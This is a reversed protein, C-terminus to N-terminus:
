QVAGGAMPLGLHLKIQFREAGRQQDRTVPSAFAVNSFMPSAALLTVLESANASFGDLQASRGEIRLETLYTTAPLVRTVEEWVGVVPTTALKRLRPQRIQAAGAEAESVKRRLGQVDATAAKLQQEAAENATDLNTWTLGTAVVNAAVVAAALGKMARAAARGLPARRRDAEPLLNVPLIQGDPLAVEVAKLPLRLRALREIAGALIFHKLVIHHVRVADGEGRDNARYWDTLVDKAQFPTTRALDLALIEAARTLAAKPIALERILCRRIPVRITASLLGGWRRAQRRLAEDDISKGDATRDHLTGDDGLWLTLEHPDRALWRAIRSPGTPVLAASAAPTAAGAKSVSSVTFANLM